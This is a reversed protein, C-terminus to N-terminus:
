GNCAALHGVSWDSCKGSDECLQEGLIGQHDAGTGAAHRDVTPLEGLMSKCCDAKRVDEFMKCLQIMSVTKM